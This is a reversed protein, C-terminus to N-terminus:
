SQILIAGHINCSNPHFRVDPIQTTFSLPHVDWSNTFWENIYKPQTDWSISFNIDSTLYGHNLREGLKYGWFYLFWSPCMLYNFSFCWSFTNLLWLYNLNLLSARYVMDFEGSDTFSVVLAFVCVMVIIFPFPYTYLLKLQLLM